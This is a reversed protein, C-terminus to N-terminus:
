VRGLRSQRDPPAPKGPCWPINLSSPRDHSIARRKKLFAREFRPPKQGSKKGAEPGRRIARSSSSAREPPEAGGASGALLPITERSLAVDAITVLDRRSVADFALTRRGARLEKEVARGLAEKGSAVDALGIIAIPLATQGALLRRLDSERVPSAADRSTETLALPKGGVM